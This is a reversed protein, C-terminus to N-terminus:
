LELVRFACLVCAGKMARACAHASTVCQKQQQQQQAQEASQPMGGGPMGQDMIPVHELPWYCLGAACSRRAVAPAAAYQQLGETV